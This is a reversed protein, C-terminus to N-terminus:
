KDNLIIFKKSDHLQVQPFLIKKMNENLEELALQAQLRMVDDKDNHYIQKLTRYIPLIDDKLFAIMESDLGVFLQRIVTVGGRRAEM